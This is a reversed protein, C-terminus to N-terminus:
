EFYTTKHFRNWFLPKGDSDYWYKNVKNNQSLEVAYYSGDYEALFKLSSDGKYHVNLFGCDLNGKVGMSLTLMTWSSNIGIDVAGRPL